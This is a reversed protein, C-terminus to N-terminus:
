KERSKFVGKRNKEGGKITLVPCKALRVVKEAVSGLVMNQLGTRGHSGMVILHIGKKQAIQAIGLAPNGKIVVYDVKLGKKKMVKKKDELMQEAIQKLTTYHDLVQITDSISYTFQEIVHLLLINGNLTKAMMGAYSLAEDSYKTFDVPVLIKKLKAM